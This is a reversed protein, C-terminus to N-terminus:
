FPSGKQFRNYNVYTCVQASRRREEAIQRKYDEADKEGAWKLEHSEHDKRREEAQHKGELDRRRKADEHRLQLSLRREEAMKLKYEEADKEGAWKLEHSEHEKQQDEAQLKEEVDRRRKGDEHRFQFSKRREEAMHMKSEEADREGAWKLDHSDHEKRREVVQLDGEFDRKREGDEHRFQASKRREEAKKREGEEVDKEGAWKLEFSSHEESQKKKEMESYLQRIRLATGNRCMLSKRRRENEAKKSVQMGIGSEHREDIVVLYEKIRAMKMKQQAVRHEVRIKARVDISMRRRKDEAEKLKKKHDRFVQSKFEIEHEM